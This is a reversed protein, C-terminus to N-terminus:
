SNKLQTYNAYLTVKAEPIDKLIVETTVEPSVMVSNGRM